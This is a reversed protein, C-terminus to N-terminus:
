LSGSSRASRGHPTLGALSIILKRVSDMIRRNLLRRYFIREKDSVMRQAGRLVFRVFGVLMFLGAIGFPRGRLSRYICKLVFFGIGGGTLYYIEGWMMNTRLSGAASGERKLHRFAIDQFQQTKWGAMQARIEDITDWGRGLTFGGIEDFCKARVVKSAGCAHYQPSSVPIWQDGKAELYAGAAIGLKDDAAFRALLRQFYDIPLEVDCDLKVVFECQM